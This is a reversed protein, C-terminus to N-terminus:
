IGVGSNYWLSKMSTSNSTPSRQRAQSGLSSKKLGGASSQHMHQSKHHHHTEKHGDNGNGMSGLANSSSASSQNLSDHDNEDDAELDSPSKDRKQRTRIVAPTLMQPAAAASSPLPQTSKRAPSLDRCGETDDDDDIHSPRRHPPNSHAHAHAHASSSSANNVASPPSASTVAASPIIVENNLTNRKTESCANANVGVVLADSSEEDDATTSGGTSETSALHVVGTSRRKERLKRRDRQQGMKGKGGMAHGHGHKINRKDKSSNPGAPLMSAHRIPPPKPSTDVDGAAGSSVDQLHMGCAGPGLDHDPM